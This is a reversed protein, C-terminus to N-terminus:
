ASYRSLGDQEFVGACIEADKLTQAGYRNPEDHERLPDLNDRFTTKVDEVIVHFKWPSGAEQEEITITRALARAKNESRCKRTNIVRVEDGLKM